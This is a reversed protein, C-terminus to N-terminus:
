SDSEFEEFRVKCDEIDIPRSSSGCFRAFGLRSPPANQEDGSSSSRSAPPGARLLGGDCRREHRYLASITAYTGKSCRQRRQSRWRKVGQFVTCFVREIFRAPLRRERQPRVATECPEIVKEDNSESTRGGTTGRHAGVVPHIKSENTNQRVGIGPHKVSPLVNEIASRNTCLSSAATIVSWCGTGRRTTLHRASRISRCINVCNNAFLM